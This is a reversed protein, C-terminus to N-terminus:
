ISLMCYILPFSHKSVQHRLDVLYTPLGINAALSSVSAAYKSKQGPDVLGNVTRLVALSYVMQLETYSRQPGSINYLM